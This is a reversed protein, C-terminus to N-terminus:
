PRPGDGPQDGPDEKLGPGWRDPVISSHGGSSRTEKLAGWPVGAGSGVGRPWPGTTPAMREQAQSAVGRRRCVRRADVGPAGFREKPWDSGRSRRTGDEHNGVVMVAQEARPGRAQQMGCGAPTRRTDTAEGFRARAGLASGFPIEFHSRASAREGSEVAHRVRSAGAGFCRCSRPGDSRYGWLWCWSPVSQAPTRCM